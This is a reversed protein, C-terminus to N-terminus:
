EGTAILRTDADIFGDQEGTHGQAERLKACVKALHRLAALERRKAPTLEQAAEAALRYHLGLVNGDQKHGADHRRKKAGIALRRKNLTHWRLAAAIIEHNSM